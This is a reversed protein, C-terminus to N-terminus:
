FDFSGGWQSGRKEIVSLCTFNLGSYNVVSPRSVRAADNKTEGKDVQRAQFIERFLFVFNERM